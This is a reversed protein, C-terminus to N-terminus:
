GSKDANALGNSIGMRAADNVPIEFRIIYGEVVKALDDNKVPTEGLPGVIDLQRSFERNLM